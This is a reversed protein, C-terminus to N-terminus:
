PSWATSWGAVLAAALLLPGLTGPAAATAAATAALGGAAITYPNVLQALSLEVRETTTGIRIAELV